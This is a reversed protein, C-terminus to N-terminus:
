HVRCLRPAFFFFLLLFPPNALSPSLWLVVCRCVCVCVRRGGISVPLFCFSFPDRGSETVSWRERKSTNFSHLSCPSGVSSSTAEQDIQKPDNLIAMLTHIRLIYLTCLLETMVSWRRQITISPLFPSPLSFIWWSHRTAKTCLFWLVVCVANLRLLTHPRSILRHDARLLPIPPPPDVHPARPHRKMCPLAPLRVCWWVHDLCVTGKGVVSSMRWWWWWHAMIIMVLVVDTPRLFKYCKVLLPALLM